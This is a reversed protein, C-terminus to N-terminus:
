SGFVFVGERERIVWGFVSYDDVVQELMLEVLEETFVSEGVVALVRERITRKFLVAEGRDDNWYTVLLDRLVTQSVDLVRERQVRGIEGPTVFGMMIVLGIKWFRIFCTYGFVLWFM